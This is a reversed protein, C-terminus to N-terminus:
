PGWLFKKVSHFLLDARTQNKKGRLSASLFGAGTKNRKLEDNKNKRQMECRLLSSIKVRNGLDEM